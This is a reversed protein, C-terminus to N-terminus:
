GDVAMEQNANEENSQPMAQEDLEQRSENAQIQQQDVPMNNGDEEGIDDMQQQQQHQDDIGGDEMQYDQQDQYMGPDQDGDMEMDDMQQPMQENQLPALNRPPRRIRLHENEVQAQELEQQYKAIIRDMLELDKRQENNYAEENGIGSAGRRLLEIQKQLEHKEKKM